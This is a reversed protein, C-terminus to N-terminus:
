RKPSAMIANSYLKKPKEHFNKEVNNGMSDINDFKKCVLFHLARPLHYNSLAINPSYN